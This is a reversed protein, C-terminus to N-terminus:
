QNEAERERRAVFYIYHILLLMGVTIGIDAVNFTPWNYPKGSMVVGLDLFDTVYGSRLRDILNGIAGGLLLGLAYALLPSRSRQSRLKVIAYIVVITIVILLPTLSPLVGGAGGTNRVLTLSFFGPIVERSEGYSLYHRAIIKTLQDLVLVVVAPIYFELRGVQRGNQGSL